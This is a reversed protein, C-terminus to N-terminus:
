RPTSRAGTCRVDPTFDTSIAGLDRSDFAFMARAAVTGFMKTLGSAEALKRLQYAIDFPQGPGLPATLAACPVPGAQWALDVRFGDDFTKLTGRVNGVLPGVALRGQKLDIGDRPDGATALDWAVDFPKPLSPVEIGHLGGKASVEAKAPGLAGYHVRADVQLGKGQLGVLRAPIGLRELPSRALDIDFGTLAQEDSVALVTCGGRLGPDLAVCVRSSTPTRDVDLRWPGVNGGPVAVVVNESSLHLTAGGLRDIWAVDARVASAEFRGNEGIPELWVVRSGETFLPALKSWDVGQANQITARWKELAAAVTGWRGRVTLEAGKATVKRPRFFSTEVQIEPAVVRADPVDIASATVGVLSFGSPELRVRDITLVLGHRLADEICQAKLYRPLVLVIAGLVAAALVVSAAVGRLLRAPAIPARPARVRPAVAIPKPPTEIRSPLELQLPLPKPAERPPTEDNV